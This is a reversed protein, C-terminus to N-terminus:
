ITPMCAQPRNTSSTSPRERPPGPWNGPCSSGSPREEPFPQRPQGLRLYDVGVEALTSLGAMVRPQNAFVGMAQRVSLDLVDAINLGKFRVRLTADNFRRGKCVECTVFVDPLFHM